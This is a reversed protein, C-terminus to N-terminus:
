EDMYMKDSISYLLNRKDIPNDSEYYMEILARNENYDNIAETVKEVAQENM